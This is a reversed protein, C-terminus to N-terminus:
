GHPHYLLHVMRIGDSTVFEYDHQFGAKEYCRIAPINDAGTTVIILSHSLVRFLEQILTRAIGKGFYAPDVALRCIQIAEKDKLQSKEWSLFGLLNKQEIDWVGIFSEQCMLIETVTELLPPIMAVGLLDAEVRYARQQLEVIKSAIAHLHPDISEVSWKVM